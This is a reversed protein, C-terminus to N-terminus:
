GKILRRYLIELGEELDQIDLDLNKLGDLLQEVLMEDHIKSTKHSILSELVLDQKAFENVDNKEEKSAARKKLMVKSILSWSSSSGPHRSGFILCFVSAFASTTAAEVERLLSIFAAAENDKGLLSSASDDKTSKLSLIAKKIAKQALKRTSLYKHVETGHEQGDGKRRHMSSQLDRLAEKM